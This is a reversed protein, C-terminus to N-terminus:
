ARAGDPLVVRVPLGMKRATEVVHKTGRSSGDWFALLGGGKMAAYELMRQNREPGARRGLRSWEAPMRKVPVGVREAWEEGWTDPGACTGSVVEAIRSPDLSALYDVAVGSPFGRSGAIVLHVPKSM